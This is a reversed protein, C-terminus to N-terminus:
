VRNTWKDRNGLQWALFEKDGMVERLAESLKKSVGRDLTGPNDWQHWYASQLADLVTTSINRPNSM